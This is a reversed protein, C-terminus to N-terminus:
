HHTLLVLTHERRSSGKIKTVVRVMTYGVMRYSHNIGNKRYMYTCLGMSYCPMNRVWLFESGLGCMMLELNSALAAVVVTMCNKLEVIRM